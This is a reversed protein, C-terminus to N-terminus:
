EKSLLMVEGLAAEGEFSLTLETLATQEFCLMINAGPLEGAQALDFACSAGGNLTMTGKLACGGAPYIVAMDCSTPKDFRFVAKSGRWTYESIPMVDGDTLLAQADDQVSASAAANTLGALSLPLVQSALTPASIYPTGDAHWGMRDYCFQRNYSSNAPAYPTVLTHYGCFTENGVTFVCNHGPGGVLITGDKANKRTVLPNNAYKEFKGLPSDSVACGLAYEQTKWFNASYYLYYKGEHRVMHPGENWWHMPNTIKEWGADPVTLLVPEGDLATLDDTLRVGYIWSEKHGDAFVNNSVDRVYYLYADGGDFFLDADIVNYGFDFLPGDILDRYPGNPTDSVTIAIRYGQQALGFVSAVMVYRGKWAVAEPAWYGKLAWSLTPMAIFSQKTTSSLKEDLKWGKIVYSTTSTGFVYADGGAMLVGPDAMGKPGVPNQYLRDAYEEQPLLALTDCQACSLLLLLMLFVLMWRKM